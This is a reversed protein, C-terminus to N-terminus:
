TSFLYSFEESEGKSPHVAQALGPFQFAEQDPMTPQEFEGLHPCQYSAEPLPLPSM